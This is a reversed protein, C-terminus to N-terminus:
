VLYEIRYNSVNSSRPIGVYHPIRELLQCRESWELWLGVWVDGNGMAELIEEEPRYEVVALRVANPVATGDCIAIQGDGLLVLEGAVGEAKDGDFPLGPFRASRWAGQDEFMAEFPGQELMSFLADASPSDDLSLYFVKGGVKMVLTATPEVVEMYM